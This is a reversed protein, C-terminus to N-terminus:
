VIAMLKSSVQRASLAPAKLKMIVNLADPMMVSMATEEMLQLHYVKKANLVLLAMQIVLPM